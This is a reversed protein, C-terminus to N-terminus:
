EAAWALCGTEYKAWGSVGPSVKITKEWEPFADQAYTFYDAMLLEQEPMTYIEDMRKLLTASVWKNMQEMKIINDPSVDHNIEHLYFTYFATVNKQIDTETAASAYFPSLGGVAIFHAIADTKGLIM